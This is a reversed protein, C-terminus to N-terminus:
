KMLLMKGTRTAGGASLRYFYMGSACCTGDFVATHTGPSMSADILKAVKQGTISYIDLTVHGAVPISFSITTSPNFPNPHNQDLTFAYNQPTEDIATTIM